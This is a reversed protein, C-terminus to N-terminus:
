RRRLVVIAALAAGLLAAGATFGPTGGSESDDNNGDTTGENNSETTDGDSGGDTTDGGSGGDGGSITYTKESFHNVAVLVDAKASADASNAVMFKSQDSGIAGTLESYSSAEAAASGEVTVSIDEVSGVAKESVSTVIVKGKSEARDATVQVENEATQKTEITTEQGYSVTDMTVEGSSEVTAYVEGAVKGESILQEQKKDSDDREGDSYARFVLKSNSGLKASVDGQENVTAEGDGVVVFAGKTEGGKTVTVVSSSEASASGDGSVNAVVYNEGDGSSVVLIGHTNDHAKMSASGETSVTASAKSQSSLSLGQVALDTVASLSGGVSVDGDSEAKSASKVQVSSLVTTDDVTYNTVASGTTEFAVHTGTYAEGSAASSGTAAVGAPLTGLLVLVALGVAVPRKSTM